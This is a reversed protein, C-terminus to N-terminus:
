VNHKEIPKAPVGVVTQGALVNTRVVAGAGIVAGSGITINELIQSGAGILIRDGIQVGGSINVGPNIVNFSGIQVDHGITSNPNFCNFDQVVIDCTFSCGATVINGCGFKIRRYDFSANPHIINPYKFQDNRALYRSIVKARIKPHGIGVVLDADFNQSLLWADDGLVTGIGLNKGINATKEDVFGYLEWRQEQENMHEVVLAVERALGGTGLIILRRRM